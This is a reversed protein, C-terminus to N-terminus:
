ENGGLNSYLEINIFSKYTLRELPAPPLFEYSLTLHGKSLETSPNIQEDFWVNYGILWGNNQLTAFWQKIMELITDIMSKNIPGAMYQVSSEQVSDEIYDAMRAVCSFSDIDTNTPFSTNRNGWVKYVGKQNIFVTIGQANALNSDSDPDSIEFYVPYETGEIGILQQNSISWHVGKTRDTEARLGALFASPPCYDSTDEYSNYAKLWPAAVECRIDDINFNIDGSENRGKIANNLSTGKPPDVYVFAKLKKALVRLATDVSEVSSFGPAILIKAKYGYEAKCDILKQIGTKIGDEDITGIIDSTKIKTLDAYEYAVTVSDDKALAGGSIVTINKGDFTYDTDLVATTSGKKVSLNQIGVENLTIVNNQFTLSSSVNAKHVDPDFVNIVFVKAGGQNFIAELAAPITFGTRNKGFYKTWTSGTVQVIKNVTRNEESVDFVPATGVLGIVATDVGEVTPTGSKERITEIGNLYTTM